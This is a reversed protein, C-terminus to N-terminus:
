FLHEFQISNSCVPIWLAQSSLIKQIDWFNDFSMESWKWAEFFNINRINGHGKQVYPYGRKRVWQAILEKPCNM